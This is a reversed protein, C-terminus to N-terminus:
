ELFVPRSQLIRLKLHKMLCHFMSYWDRLTVITLGSQTLVTMPLSIQNTQKNEHNQKYGGHDDWPMPHLGDTKVKQLTEEQIIHGKQDAMDKLDQFIQAGYFETQDNELRIIYVRVLNGWDGGLIRVWKRHTSTEM